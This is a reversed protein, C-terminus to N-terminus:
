FTVEDIGGVKEFVTGRLVLFVGNCKQGIKLITEHKQVEFKELKDCVLKVDDGLIQGLLSDKVKKIMDVKRVRPVSIKLNGIKAQLEGHVQEAYKEALMGASKQQDTFDIMKLLVRYNANKQNISYAIEPYPKMIQIDLVEKARNIQPDVEFQIQKMVNRSLHKKM